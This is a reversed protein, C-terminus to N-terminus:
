HLNIYTALSDKPQHIVIGVGKGSASDVEFAIGKGKAEYVKVKKGKATYSSIPSLNYHKQYEALSLGTNIGEATKFTPSTVLVKRVRAISEDKSGFNHNAFISTKHGATDHNAYWTMVTSGMAADSFDPKGLIASLSDANGSITIKGISKGPVILKDPIVMKGTDDPAKVATADQKDPAEKGTHHGCSFIGFTVAIIFGYKIIAKKM